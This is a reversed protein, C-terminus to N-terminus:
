GRIAPSRSTRCTRSCGDRSPWASSSRSCRRRARTRRLPWWSTTSSAAPVGSSTTTGTPSPISPGRICRVAAWTVESHPQPQTAVRWIIAWRAPGSARSCRGGPRCTRRARRCRRGRPLRARGTALWGGQEIRSCIDALAREAYPPDLFVIDFPESPGALYRKADATVVRAVTASSTRCRRRSIGRRAPMSRSSFSVAPAGRCRRSDWRVAAPMCTWAGAAPLTWRCGTSCRRASGTRLRASRRWRRSTSGAAAGHEALSAYCCDAGPGPLM